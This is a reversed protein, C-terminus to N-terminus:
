HQLSQFGIIKVQSKEVITVQANRSSSLMFSYDSNFVKLSRFFFHRPCLFDSLPNLPVMTFRNNFDKRQPNM